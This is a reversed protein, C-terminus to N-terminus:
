LYLCTARLEVSFRAPKGVEVEPDRVATHPTFYIEGDRVRDTDYTRFAVAETPEMEPFVYWRHPDEDDGAPSVGLADFTAGTGAYNKVHFARAHDLTVTRIDCFALPFDMKAPGLNRWFQLIVIRPATEVADATIGNRALAKAGLPREGRYSNRIIDAHGAAFDSHAFTIPSLQSHKKATDPSRKIHNSVLAADAGTMKKALEEVEPYHIQAVQEDDLWDEVGSRAEVLEFGCDQWGPLDAQRGDFIEVESARRRGAPSGSGAGPVYNIATRCFTTM